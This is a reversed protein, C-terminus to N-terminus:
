AKARIKRTHPGVWFRTGKKSTRWHGKVQVLKYGPEETEAKAKEAGKAKAQRKTKAKGTSAKTQETKRAEADMKDWRAKATRFNRLIYEAERGRAWPGGTVDDQTFGYRHMWERAM